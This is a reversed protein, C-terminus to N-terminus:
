RPCFPLAGFFRCGSLWGLWLRLGALFHDMPLTGSESLAVEDIIMKRQGSFVAPVRYEAAWIPTVKALCRM